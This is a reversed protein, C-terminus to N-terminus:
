EGGLDLESESESPTDTNYTKNAIATVLDAIKVRKRTATNTVYQDVQEQKIEELDSRLEEESLGLATAAAHVGDATTGDWFGGPHENFSVDFGHKRALRMTMWCVMCPRKGGAIVAEGKHGSKILAIILNQEAHTKNKKGPGDMIADVAIIQNRHAGTKVLKAADDTSGGAVIPRDNGVVERLTATVAGFADDGDPDADVEEARRRALEVIDEDDTVAAEDAVGIALLAIKAEKRLRFDANVEASSQGALAAAEETVADKLNLGTLEQVSWSENASVLIRGNVAMSEIEQVAKETDATVPEEGKALKKNAADASARALKNRADQKERVKNIMLQSLQNLAQLARVTSKDAPGSAIGTERWMGTYTNVSGMGEAHQKVMAEVANKRLKGRKTVVPKKAKGGGKPAPAPAKVPKAIRARKAPPTRAKPEDESGSSEVAEDDDSDSGLRGRKTVEQEDGDSESSSFSEGSSSEESLLKMKGATKRKLPRKVKPSASGTDDRLDALSRKKTVKKPPAKRKKAPATHHEGLSSSM